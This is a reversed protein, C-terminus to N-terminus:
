AADLFFAGVRQRVSGPSPVFRNRWKVPSFVPPNTLALRSIDSRSQTSNVRECKKDLDQFPFYERAWRNVTKQASVSSLRIEDPTFVGHRGHL